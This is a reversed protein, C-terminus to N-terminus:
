LARCGGVRKHEHFARRPGSEAASVAERGFCACGGRQLECRQAAPRGGVLNVHGIILAGSRKGVAVTQSHPESAVATEYLIYFVFGSGSESGCLREPLLEEEHAGVCRRRGRWGGRGQRRRQGLPWRQRWWRWQRQRWWRWQRQRWWRWHRQRWRRQRDMTFADVAGLDDARGGGGAAHNKKRAGASNLAGAATGRSSKPDSSSLFSVSSHLSALRHRARRRSSHILTWAAFPSRSPGIWHTWLQGWPVTAPCPVGPPPWANPIPFEIANTGFNHPADFLPHTHIIILLM